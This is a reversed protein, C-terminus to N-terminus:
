TVLIPFWNKKTMFCINRQAVRRDARDTEPVCARFKAGRVLPSGSGCYTAALMGWPSRSFNLGRVNVLVDSRPPSADARIGAGCSDIGYRDSGARIESQESESREESTLSDVVPLSNEVAGM